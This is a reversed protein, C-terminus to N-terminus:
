FYTMNIASVPLFVSFLPDIRNRGGGGTNKHGGTLNYIIYCTVIHVHVQPDM